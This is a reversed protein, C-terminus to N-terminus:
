RWSVNYNLTVGARQGSVTPSSPNRSVWLGYTGGLTLNDKLRYVANLSVSLGTLSLEPSLAGSTKGYDAGGDIALRRGVPLGYSGGVRSTSTVGSFGFAGEVSRAYHMEIRGNRAVRTAFGVTGAPLVQYGGTEDSFMRVGGSATLAGTRRITSQWTAQVGHVAGDIVNSYSQNWTIGLSSTRTLRRALSVDATVSSQGVFDNSDFWANSMSATGSLQTRPTVDYALLASAMNTRTLVKPLVLGADLLVRSDQAYSSTVNDGAAFTLRRGLRYSVTAGADYTFRNLSKQERYFVQNASARLSMAARRITVARSIGAMLGTGLDGGSGDTLQVNNETTQNMGVSLSWPKNGVGSRRLALRSAEAPTM